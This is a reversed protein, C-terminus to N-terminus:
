IPEKNVVRVIDGAQLYRSGGVVVQSGATLGSLIEIQESPSSPASSQSVAVSREAVEVTNAQVEGMNAESVNSLTFVLARGDPQTVVADTPVVVHRRTGTLIKAQLFMGSLLQNGSDPLPVKVTAQRSQANLTPEIADIQSTLSLSQKGSMASNTASVTVPMGLALDTLQEQEPSLELVLQHNEILSYLPDSPSATDGITAFREAITGAVPATIVTQTMLAEIRTIESAQSDIKARANELNANAVAVEQRTTLAQIQRTGLQEQSIAGAEFLSGYRAADVMAAEQLVQSQTLVAEQRQLETKAQALNAKAQQLQAQLVSSDLVALTEGASIRDGSAVRMQKIPLGSLPAAINLLNKPVVTGTLTLSTSINELQVTHLTVAQATPNAAQATENQAKEVPSFAGVVNWYRGSIVALVAIFLVAVGGRTKFLIDSLLKVRFLWSPRHRPTKVAVSALQELIEKPPQEIRTM